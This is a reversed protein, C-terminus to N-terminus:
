DLGVHHIEEEHMRRMSIIRMVGNRDTWVLAVAVNDVFGYSLFREEGYDTRDDVITLSRGAFLRPADLFDLARDKLTLLRKAPDFEIEM